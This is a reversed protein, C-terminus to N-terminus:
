PAPSKNCVCFYLTGKLFQQCNFGGHGDSCATESEVWFGWSTNYIGVVGGMQALPWTADTGGCTTGTNGGGQPVGLGAGSGHVTDASNFSGNQMSGQWWISTLGLNPAPNAITM